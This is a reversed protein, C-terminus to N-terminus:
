CNHRSKQGSSGHHRGSGSELVRAWPLEAAPVLCRHGRVHEIREKSGQGKSVGGCLWRVRSRWGFRARKCRTFHSQTASQAASGQVPM